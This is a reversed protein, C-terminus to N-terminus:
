VFVGYNLKQKLLIIESTIVQWHQSISDPLIIFQQPTIQFGIFRLSILRNRARSNRYWIECWSVCRSKQASSNFIFALEMDLILPKCSILLKTKAKVCGDLAGWGTGGGEYCATTMKSCTWNGFMEKWLLLLLYYPLAPWIISVLTYKWVASSLPQM